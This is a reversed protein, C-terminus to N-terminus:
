VERKTLKEGMVLDIECTKAQSVTNDTLQRNKIKASLVAKWFHLHLGPDTLAFSRQYGFKKKAVTKSTCLVCELIEKDLKNFHDINLESDEYKAFLKALTEIQSEFNKEKALGKFKKTFRESKDAHEIVFDRASNLVPRNIEGKFLLIDNCDIYFMVQDSQIGEYQGLLMGLKKVSPLM